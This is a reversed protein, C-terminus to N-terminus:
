SGLRDPDDGSQHAEQVSRALEAVVEVFRPEPYPEHPVLPPPAPALPVFLDAQTPTHLWLAALHLAPVRFMRLEFPTERVLQTDEVARLEDTMAQVFPGETVQAPGEGGTRLHVETSAVPKKREEVIFSWATPEAVQEVPGPEALADLGATFVQHPVTLTTQRIASRPTYLLESLGGRRSVRQETTRQAARTVFDPPKPIEIPM